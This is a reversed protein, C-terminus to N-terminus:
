DPWRGETLTLAAPAAMSAETSTNRITGMLVVTTIVVMHIVVMRIVVMRIVVMRIVVLDMILHSAQIHLYADEQICEQHGTTDMNGVEM